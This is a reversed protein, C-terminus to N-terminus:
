RLYELWLCCMVTRIIKDTNKDYTQIESIKKCLIASKHFIIM